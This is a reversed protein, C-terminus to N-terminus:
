LLTLHKNLALKLQENQFQLIKKIEGDPIMQNALYLTNSVLRTLTMDNIRNGKHTEDWRPAICFCQDYIEPYNFNGEFAIDFIIANKSVYKSPIHWGSVPVASVLIDSFQTFHYIDQIDTYQQCVRVSANENMMMLALSKGVSLSDNVITVKKGQLQFPNEHYNFLYKGSKEFAMEFLLHYRKIIYLIGKSTPPIVLKRLGFPDLHKKFQVLYGLNTFHLGEVDKEMNLMNMFERDHIDYPTPYLIISALIDNRNNIELIIRELDGISDASYDAIMISYKDCAQQIGKIYSISGPDNSTCVVALSPKVGNKSLIEINKKLVPQDYLEILLKIDIIHM